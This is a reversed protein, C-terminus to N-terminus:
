VFFDTTSTITTSAVAVPAPGGLDIEFLRGDDVHSNGYDAVYLNMDGPDDNPNSTPAFEIDKVHVRTGSVPNRFNKLIDIVELITGDRDVRWINSSFGGGVYFEDNSVNYALAEPDSIVTPLTVSSFVQTGRNDTEIITRPTGNVIFLHGSNSFALDEPDTGGIPKTLFEGLKITPNAPDVWCVKFKDDDCIFLHHSTPDYAL